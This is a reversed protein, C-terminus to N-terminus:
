LPGAAIRSARQMTCRQALDSAVSAVQFKFIPNSELTAAVKLSVAPRAEMANAHRASDMLRTQDQENLSGEGSDIAQSPGDNAHHLRWRLIPDGHTEKQKIILINYIYIIM